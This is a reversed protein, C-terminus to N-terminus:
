RAKPLRIVNFFEGALDELVQHNGFRDSVATMFDFLIIFPDRPPSPEAPIGAAREAALTADASLTKLLDDAEQVRGEKLLARVDEINKPDAM